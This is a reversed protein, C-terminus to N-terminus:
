KNVNIDGADLVYHICMNILHTLSPVERSFNISFLLTFLSSFISNRPIWPHSHPTLDQSVDGPLKVIPPTMHDSFLHQNQFALVGHPARLHPCLVQLIVFPQTTCSWPSYEECYRLTKTFCDFGGTSCTFPNRTCFLELRTCSQIQTHPSAPSLACLSPCLPRFACLLVFIYLTTRAPPVHCCLIFDGLFLLARSLLFIVFSFLTSLNLVSVNMGWCCDWRSVTKSKNHM